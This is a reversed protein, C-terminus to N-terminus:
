FGINSLYEIDYGTSPVEFVEEPVNGDLISVVVDVSGLHHIFARWGALNKGDVFYYVKEIQSNDITSGSVYEDYHLMRGDFTAKGSNVYRLDKIDLNVGAIIDSTDSIL